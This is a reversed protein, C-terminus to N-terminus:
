KIEMPSNTMIKKTIRRQVAAKELKEKNITFDFFDLFQYIGRLKDNGSDLIRKRLIEYKQDSLIAPNEKRLEDLIELFSKFLSTVEKDLHVTILNNEPNM